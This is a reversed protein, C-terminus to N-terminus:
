PKAGRQISLSEIYGIPMDKVEDYIKQDVPKDEWKSALVYGVKIIKQMYKLKVKDKGSIDKM